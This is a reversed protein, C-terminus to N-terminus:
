RDTMAYRNEESLSETQKGTNHMRNAQEPHLLESIYCTQKTQLFSGLAKKENGTVSRM